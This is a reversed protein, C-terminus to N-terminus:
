AGSGRFHRLTHNETPTSLCVTGGPGWGHLWIGWILGILALIAIIGIIGIMDITDVMDVM